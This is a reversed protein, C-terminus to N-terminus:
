RWNFRVLARYSQINEADIEQSLSIFIDSHRGTFVLPLLPLIRKKCSCHHKLRVNRPTRRPNQCLEYVHTIVQSPDDAISRHVHIDTWLRGEYFGLLAFIDSRHPAQVKTSLMSGAYVVVLQDEHRWFPVTFSPSFPTKIVAGHYYQLDPSYRIQSASNTKLGEVEFHVEFVPVAPQSGQIM